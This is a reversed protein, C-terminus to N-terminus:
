TELIDIGYIAMVLKKKLRYVATKIGKVDEVVRHGDRHIYSFDAVYHCVFMGNVDLRFEPQISLCSIEKAALLLKLEQYRRSEKKSSFRINDCVTAVAGYKHPRNM